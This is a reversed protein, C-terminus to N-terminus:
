TLLDSIPYGILESYHESVASPTARSLVKKVPSDPIIDAVVDTLSVRGHLVPLSDQVDAPRSASAPHHRQAQWSVPSRIPVTMAIM